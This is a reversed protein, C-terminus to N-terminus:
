RLTCLFACSQYEQAKQKNDSLIVIPWGSNSNSDLWKCIFYSIVNAMISVILLIVLDLM